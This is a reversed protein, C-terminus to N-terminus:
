VCLSCNSIDFPFFLFLSHQFCFFGFLSFTFILLLRVNQAENSIEAFFIDGCKVRMHVSYLEVFAYLLVVFGRAPMRIKAEFTHGCGLLLQPSRLASELRAVQNPFRKQRSKQIEARRLGLGLTAWAWASGSKELAADSDAHWACV